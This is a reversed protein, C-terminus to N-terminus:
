WNSAVTPYEKKFAIAGEQTVRTRHTKFAEIKPFKALIAFCRDDCDTFRVDLRKLEPSAIHEIARNDVPNEHIDLTELRMLRQFVSAEENTLNTWSLNLETLSPLRALVDLRQTVGVMGTLDLLELNSLSAIVEMLDSDVHKHHTLTLEKLLPRDKLFALQNTTLGLSDELWWKGGRRFEFVELRRLNVFESLAETPFNTVQRLRLERLNSLRSMQRVAHPTLGHGDIALCELQQIEGLGALDDMSKDSHITRTINLSRLNHCERLAEWGQQGIDDYVWFGFDEIETLSPLSAFAEVTPPGKQANSFYVAKVRHVFDVGLYDSLWHPTPPAPGKYNSGFFGPPIQWGFSYDYVVSGGCAEIAAIAHAQAQAQGRRYACWGCVGCMVTVVALLM